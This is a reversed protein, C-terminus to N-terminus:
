AFLEDEIDTSKNTGENLDFDAGVSNTIENDYNGDIFADFDDGDDLNTLNDTQSRRDPIDLNSANYKDELDFTDNALDALPDVTQEEVEFLEPNFKLRRQLNLRSLEAGAALEIPGPVGDPGLIGYAMRRAGEQVETLVLYGTGVVVSYKPNKEWVQLEYPVTKNQTASSMRSSTTGPNIQKGVGVNSQRIAVNTGDITPQEFFKKVRAEKGICESCLHKELKDSPANADVVQKGCYHDRFKGHPLIYECIGATYTMTRINELNSSGAKSTGGTKRAPKSAILKHLERQENIQMILLDQIDLLSPNPKRVISPFSLEPTQTTQKAAQQEAIRKNYALARADKGTSRSM